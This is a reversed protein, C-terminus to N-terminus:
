VSFVLRGVIRNHIYLVEVIKILSMEKVHIEANRGEGSATHISSSFWSFTLLGETNINDPMVCGTLQLGGTNMNDPMVCGTLQLGGTNMNDPM